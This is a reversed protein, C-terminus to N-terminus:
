PTAAARCLQLREHPTSMEVCTGDIYELRFGFSFEEGAAPTYSQDDVTIHARHVGASDVFTSRLEVYVFHDGVASGSAEGPAPRPETPAPVPAPDQVPRPEEIAPPAAAPPAVEAPAAPPSTDAAPLPTDAASPPTAAPPPTGAPAPPPAEPVTVLQAFPDQRNALALLLEDDAASTTPVSPEPAAPPAPRRSLPVTAEGGEGGLMTFLLVLGLLVGGLGAAALLLQRRVRLSTPQENM